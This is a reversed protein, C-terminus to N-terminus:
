HIESLYVLKKNGKYDCGANRPHPIKLYPDRRLLFNNTYNLKQLKGM